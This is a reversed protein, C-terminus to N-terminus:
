VFPHRPERQGKSICMCFHMLLLRILRTHQTTNRGTVQLTTTVRLVEICGM